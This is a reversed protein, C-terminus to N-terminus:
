AYTFKLANELSIPEGFSLYGSGWLGLMARHVHNVREDELQVFTGNTSHDILQFRGLQWVVRAHERSTFIGPIVLDSESQLGISIGADPEGVIRLERDRWSLILEPCGHNLGELTRKPTRFDM